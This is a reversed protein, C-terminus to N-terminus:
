SDRPAWNKKDFLVEALEEAFDPVDRILLGQMGPTVQGIFGLVDNRHHPKALNFTRGMYYHVLQDIENDVVEKKLGRYGDVQIFDSQVSGYRRKTEIWIVPQNADDAEGFARNRDEANSCHAVHDWKEVVSEIRDM